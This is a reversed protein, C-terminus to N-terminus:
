SCTTYKKLSTRLDDLKLPKSLFANMGVSASQAKSIDTVNATLALIPFDADMERLRRTAEFGNMVPMQCDMLICCYAHFGNEVIKDIAEQGNAAIDAELDLKKLQKVILNQNIINDEVVLILRSAESRDRPPATVADLKGIAEKSQQQSIDHDSDSQEALPDVFILNRQSQTALTSSDTTTTFSSYVDNESDSVMNRLMHYINVFNIPRKIMMKFNRNGIQVKIDQSGDVLRTWNVCLLIDGLIESSYARLGIKRLFDIIVHTFIDNGANIYYKGSIYHPYLMDHETYELPCTFTFTSGGGLISEVSINGNVATAIRHCIALGLGTGSHRRSLSTDEQTFPEFITNLREPVIGIGTDESPFSAITTKVATGSSWAVPLLLNTPM